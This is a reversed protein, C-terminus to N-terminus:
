APPTSWSGRSTFPDGAADGLRTGDRTCFGTERFAEGCEPCVFVPPYSLLGDAAGAPPTRTRPPDDAPRDGTVPNRSSEVPIGSAVCWRTSFKWWGAAALPSSRGRSRRTAYPTSQRALASSTASTSPVPIRPSLASSTACRRRASAPPRTPSARAGTRSIICTPPIPAARAARIWAKADKRRYPHPFRDRLNRSVARNGALPVISAVDDKRWSRITCSELRIEM